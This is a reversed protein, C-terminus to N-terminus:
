EESTATQYKVQTEYFTSIQQQSLGKTERIVFHSFTGALICIIGYFGFLYVLSLFPLAVVIITAGIWNVMTAISIGKEPLIESNYLWVIPGLSFNFALYYLFILIVQVLQCKDISSLICLAVQFIACFFSGYILIKKRGLSNVFFSSLISAFLLTVNSILSILNQLVFSSIMQQFITGSYMVVANIGSFQQFFQLLCGVLLKKRYKISFMDGYSQQQKSKEFAQKQIEQIISEQYEEKYMNQIVQQGQEQKDYIFYYLPTEYNFFLILVMSRLVFFILPFLYVLRWYNQPSDEGKENFFQGLISSLIIGMAITTNFITGMKGRLENPSIESIYQPVISSNLGTAVGTLTRSVLLVHVNKVQTLCTAVIGLGDLLLLSNKRSVVGLLNASFFSGFIAGFPVLACVLAKYLDYQSQQVQLVNFLTKESLSFVGLSYGFFLSGLCSNLVQFTVKLSSKHKNQILKVQM